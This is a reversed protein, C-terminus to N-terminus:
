GDAPVARMAEGEPTAEEQGPPQNGLDLTLAEHGKGTWSQFDCLMRETVTSKPTTM